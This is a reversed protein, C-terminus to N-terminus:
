RLPRAADLDEPTIRGWRRLALLAFWSSGYRRFTERGGLRDWRAFDGEHGNRHEERPLVVTSAEILAALDERSVDAEVGYQMAEHGFELWLEIGEGDFGPHSTAREYLSLLCRPVAHHLEPKHAVM